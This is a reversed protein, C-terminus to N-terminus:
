DVSVVSISISDSDSTESEECDDDCKRRLIRNYAGSDTRAECRLPVDSTVVQLASVVEKVAMVALRVGLYSCISRFPDIQEPGCLRTEDDEVCHCVRFLLEAPSCTLSRLSM